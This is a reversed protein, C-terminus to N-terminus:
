QDWFKKELRMKETDLLFYRGTDQLSGPNIYIRNDREEVLERHTHGYVVIDIEKDERFAVIADALIHAVGIHHGDSEIRLSFKAEVNELESLEKWLETNM